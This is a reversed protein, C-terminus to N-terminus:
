RTHLLKASWQIFRFNDHIVRGWLFSGQSPHIVKELRPALRNAPVKTILKGVLHVPSIPHYDKISAADMSKPLLTLLMDNTSHLNIFDLRWFANFAAMLDPCIVLWAVQLFRMTFGNPELAKDPPLVRITNWVEEEMFRAGLGDPNLQSL